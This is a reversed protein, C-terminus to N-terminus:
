FRFLDNLIGGEGEKLADRDMKEKYKLRRCDTNLRSSINRTVRRVSIERL